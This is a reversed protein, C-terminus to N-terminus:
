IQTQIVIIIFQKSVVAVANSALIESPNLVTFYALNALLYTVTVLPLSIYIALPLNRNPNKLEETVFNLYNWGAYSFLGSYFALSLKGPSFESNNMPNSLNQNFGLGLYTLGSIIITILALVKTATFIDQVLTASKVKYCNIFTLLASLFIVLKNSFLMFINTSACFCIWECIVCAALIRVAEYPPECEPYFPQLIYNAFTLAIIANGAPMIVLLSMWIYLFGPLPGFAERIYAYDGGSKPIM